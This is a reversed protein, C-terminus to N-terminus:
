FNNKLWDQIVELFNELSPLYEKIGKYAIQEDIGNYNHVVRNRLGNAKKLDRILKDSIIDNENLFELNSYDDKPIEQLDKVLMASIDSIVEIILQYIHYISFQDRLSLDNKFKNVDDGKIWKKLESIYKKLIKEKGKYRKLRESSLEIYDKGNNM